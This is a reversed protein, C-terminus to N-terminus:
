RRQTDDGAGMTAAWHSLFFKKDTPLFSDARGLMPRLATTMQLMVLVFILLWVNIGAESRIGLRDFSRGLFRAGFLVAVIWFLLHLIGMGVVSTTSQSFIWAVPAFGILLIMMLALLGSLIGVVEVLRAQSGGLCAFIYLSPLCIFAGALLALVVKAPAAWWQMGGSFSGMIVGYAVGCLVAIGLLATILRGSGSQQVQYVIRRPHRLLADIVAAPSPLPTADDPQAGLAPERVELARSPVPPLSPPTSEM